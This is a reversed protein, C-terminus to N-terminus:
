QERSYALPGRLVSRRTVGMGDLALRMLGGVGRQRLWQRGLDLYQEASWYEGAPRVLGHKIARYLDDASAGPFITYAQGITALSHADSGGVAPLKLRDAVRQAIRNCDRQSWIVGANLAEIADLSWDGRLEGGQPGALGKLGLSPVSRDYPHAAVCLGGQAHVAAITEAATRGPPLEDEIFLALLHGEATSVEEGVIVQVGFDRALQQAERGGQITDHDTIAIVRLDSNAVHALIERISATGDSYISHIHLDAKSQQDVRM